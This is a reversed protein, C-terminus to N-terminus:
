GDPRGPTEPPHLEGHLFGRLRIRGPAIPLGHRVPERGPRTGPPMRRPLAEARLWPNPLGQELAARLQALASSVANRMERALSRRRAESPAGAHAEVKAILDGAPDRRDLLARLSRLAPSAPDYFSEHPIWGAHGDGSGEPGAGPWAQVRAIAFTAFLAFDRRSLQVAHPGFALEERGRDLVLEPAERAEAQWRLLDVYSLGAPPSWDGGVIGLPLFPIRVLDLRVDAARASHRAGGREAVEAEPQDPWWFDPCRTLAEPEVLVHSMEDGERGLLMMAAQLYSSMTKRGGALSLHLRTEPRATVEALTRTALDAFAANDAASRLDALPRGDPGDPTRLEVREPAPAGYQRALAALRAELAAARLDQGPERPATGLLIVEAPAMRPHGRNAPDALADPNLLAWATETIVAPSVGLSAVLVLRRAGTGAGTGTGTGM